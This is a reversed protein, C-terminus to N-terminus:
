SEKKQNLYSVKNGKKLKFNKSILLSLCLKRVISSQKYMTQEQSVSEVFARCMEYVGVPRAKALDFISKNRGLWIVVLQKRKLDGFDEAWRRRAHRWERDGTGNEM